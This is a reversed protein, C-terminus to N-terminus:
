RNRWLSAAPTWTDVDVGQRRVREVVFRWPEVANGRARKAIAMAAGMRQALWLRWSERGLWSLTQESEPPDIGWSLLGEEDIGATFPVGHAPCGALQRRLADAGEDLEERTHFYTVLKDPRLLGGADQGIKMQAGPLDALVRVVAEFAERIHEPRPSVYLKHTVAEADRARATRSYWSLWGNAREVPVPIWHQDLVVRLSGTEIGLHAAVADRTPFRSRWFPTIPIRNYFYIAPTLVQLDDSDLDQAYLLADRSIRAVSHTADVADTVPVVISLADAGSVFAAASEIELVGDLVLDIVDDDAEIAAPTQLTRFLEAVERGVSKLNMATGPRPVLLGYFDADRELERFPGSQEPPLEDLRRLDLMPSSRFLM